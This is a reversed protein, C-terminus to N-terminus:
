DWNWDPQIKLHISKGCSLNRQDHALNWNRGLPHILWRAFNDAMEAIFFERDEVSLELAREHCKCLHRGLEEPTLDEM